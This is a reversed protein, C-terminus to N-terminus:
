CDTLSPYLNRLLARRIGCQDFPYCSLPSSKQGSNPRQADDNPILPHRSPSNADFLLSLRSRIFPQLPFPSGLSRERRYGPHFEITHGCYIDTAAKDPHKQRRATLLSLSFSQSTSSNGFRNKRSSPVTTCGISSGYFFDIRLQEDSM